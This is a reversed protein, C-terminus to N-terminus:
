LELMVASVNSLAGDWIWPFVGAAIGTGGTTGAISGASPSMGGLALAGVEWLGM